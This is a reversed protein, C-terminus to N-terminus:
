KYLEKNEKLLQWFAKDKCHLPKNLSPLKVLSHHKELKKIKSYINDEENKGSTNFIYRVDRTNLDSVNHIVWTSIYNAYDNDATSFHSLLQTSLVTGVGFMRGEKLIKKLSNFNKSLFNDAEDVLIMKTIQRYEGSIESEGEILMQTYLIDLTIAVVLNQISEDCGSLNIVTVGEIINLLSKTKAVDPEFIEFDALNRMAAYLVDEKIDERALYNSLVDNMTPATRDWTASNLKSIGCKEYAEMIIDRLLTEQKPGLRFAKTITEKIMNATHLPLLQKSKNTVSLALPNYPLHFLDYVTANTIQKFDTDTYDGKYDFILIGIPKGNVNDKQNQYLQAILSKTFQTKGTGMTGIIGTNTHPTQNTDTPYWTLSNNNDVQNGFVIQLPKIEQETIEPEVTQENDWEDFKSKIANDTSETIISNKETCGFTNCFLTKPDFDSNGSLYKNKLEEIDSIITVYGDQELLEIFLINDQIITSEKFYIDKKFSIVAGRGINSDHLNSIEYNDSLLKSRVESNLIVDWNQEPWIDYMKMKEASVIVLQMMFNRYLMKTIPISEKESVLLHKELLDRTKGAQEIGKGKVGQANKGIKVEVPYYYVKVEGNCNHIGVLLVDDSYVGTGRLNKVSFLGDSKNLGAGGSVRLIEELSLPVWIVDPHYFYALTIKIASLISLKERPFQNKSSILRLLWDGNIANFFNIVNYAAGSINELGKSHLFEDIVLQYQKSKRTVTIADYGSSSTYQDSYHIILLDKAELANKFFSLDVKPDIFTIWHSTDYVKDLKKKSTDFIATTISQEGDYPNGSKIVRQLANLLTAISLLPNNNINQLHKTGFGTRYSDGLYISPVGSILGGLAVGTDIDKMTSSTGEIDQDMECFTIHAYEYHGEQKSKKFFQVKERFVNLLDEETYNSGSGVSLNLEFIEKITNINNHFSIEEFVNLSDIEGYIYLEINFLQEIFTKKRLAAVYYAFIGQMVEKCDGLNSLNIRIPSDNSLEFLYSFHDVFEEIKEQVLKAVFNRSGKYRPKTCDVYLVWGPSHIQEVPKYLKGDSDYIYPLLAIPNLNKLLEDPIKENGLKENILLQYAVVLPHLPTFLIEQEGDRKAITGIKTLNKQAAIVYTGKEINKLSNLYEFVYKQALSSLLKDYHALSPISDNIRYYQILKDYAEKLRLDVEIEESILEENLEYYFLDGKEIIFKEREINKRFDDRAYYEQNGQILKNGQYEFNLEYERKRKWVGMGTIAIPLEAIDEIALPIMYGDFLLKIKIFNSDEDSLDLDDNKRLILKEGDEIEFSSELSDITDHIENTGSPNIIFENEEFQGVIYKEKGKIRIIFKTKIQELIKESCEVIAIRFEFKVNEEKYTVKSFGTTNSKHDLIITLRKGTKTVTVEGEKKLDNSKINTDFICELTIDKLKKENFIIINRIRSKIKTTGNPREWYNLGEIIKSDNYAIPIIEKKRTTSQKVEKYEIKEWDDEKLLEIGKEDFYKELEIDPNGYKHITDVKSFLDFSDQMRSYTAEDSSQILDSDYFLGFNKYEEREIGKTNLIELISEYEFISTNDEFINNKKQDLAFGLIFRDVRKLNSISLKARIDAIVSDVNFPMGAKQFSETGRIISDLTTDHIFLIASNAFQQDLEVGVKNRLFTLFDPKVGNITAAIIININEYTLCYSKYIIKESTTGYVFEIANNAQGLCEYLSVVQEEKEFQIHFKEGAKLEYNNFHELVLQVLYNYFQKSMSRM